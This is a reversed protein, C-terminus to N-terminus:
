TVLFSILQVRLINTILTPQYIYQKLQHNQEFEKLCKCEPSADKKYDINLDGLIVIEAVVEINGFMSLSNELHDIAIMSKVDPPRYVTGILLKKQKPPDSLLWMAEIDGSVMNM